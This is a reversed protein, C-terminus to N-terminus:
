FIQKSLVPCTEMIIINHLSQFDESGLQEIEVDNRLLIGSQYTYFCSWGFMALIKDICTLIIRLSHEQRHM